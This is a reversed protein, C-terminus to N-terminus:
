RTTGQSVITYSSVNVKVKILNRTSHCSSLSGGYPVIYMNTSTGEQIPPVWRDNRSDHFSSRNQDFNDQLYRMIEERGLTHIDTSCSNARSFVSRSVLKPRTLRTDLFDFNSDDSFPLNFSSVPVDRRRFMGTTILSLANDFDHVRLQVFHLQTLTQIAGEGPLDELAIKRLRAALQADVGNGELYIDYFHIRTLTKSDVNFCMLLRM